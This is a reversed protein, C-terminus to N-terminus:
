TYLRAVIRNAATSSIASNQIGKYISIITDKRVNTHHVTKSNVVVNFHQYKIGTYM